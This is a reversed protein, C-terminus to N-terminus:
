ALLERERVGVKGPMLMDFDDHPTHKKLPKREKLLAYNRRNYFKDPNKYQYHYIKTARTQRVELTKSDNIFVTFESRYGARISLQESAVFLEPGNFVKIKVQHVGGKGEVKVFQKPVSNVVKKDITVQIKQGDATKFTAAAMLAMAEGCVVGLGLLVLVVKRM